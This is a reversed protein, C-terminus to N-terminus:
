KILKRFEKVIMDADKIAEEADKNSIIFDTDYAVMERLM